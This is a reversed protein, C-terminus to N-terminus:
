KAEFLIVIDNGSPDNPTTNVFLIGNGTSIGSTFGITEKQNHNEDIVRYTNFIYQGRKIKGVYTINDFNETEGVGVSKINTLNGNKYTFYFMYDVQEEPESEMGILTTSYNTEFSIVNSQARISSCAFLIAIVIIVKKVKNLKKGRIRNYRPNVIRIIAGEVEKLYKRKGKPFSYWSFRDWKKRKSKIHNKIRRKLNESIGIYCLGHLNYLAYIGFTEPIEEVDKDSNKNKDTKYDYVLREEKNPKKTKM